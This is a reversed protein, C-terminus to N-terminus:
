NTLRYVYYKIKDEEFVYDEILIMGNAYFYIAQRKSDVYRELIGIPFAEGNISIEEMDTLFMGDITMEFDEPMENYSKDAVNCAASVQDVLSVESELDIVNPLYGMASVVVEITHKSLYKMCPDILRKAETIKM